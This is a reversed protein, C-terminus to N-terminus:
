KVMGDLIETTLWTLLSRALVRSKQARVQLLRDFVFMSYPGFYLKSSKPGGAFAVRGPVERVKVNPSFRSAYQAVTLVGWAEDVPQVYLKTAKVDCLFEVSEDISMNLIHDVM